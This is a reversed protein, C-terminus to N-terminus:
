RKGATIRKRKMREENEQRDACIAPAPKRRIM